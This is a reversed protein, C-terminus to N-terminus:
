EAKVTEMPGSSNCAIVPNNVTMAEFPVILVTPTYLFVCAYQSFNVRDSM